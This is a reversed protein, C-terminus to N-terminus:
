EAAGHQRLLDAIGYYDMEIALKLPTRGEVDKINLDAGKEILLEINGKYGWFVATHLPTEGANNQININSGHNILEKSINAYGYATAYHLPTDGSNDKTNIDAGKAILLKLVDIIKHERDEQKNEYDYIWNVNETSYDDLFYDPEEILNKAFDNMNIGGIVDFYGTEVRATDQYFSRIIKKYKPLNERALCVLGLARIYPNKDKTMNICQEEEFPDSLILSMIYFTSPSGVYGINKGAVRNIDKLHSIALERIIGDLEEDPTKLMNKIHYIYLSNWWNLKIAQIWDEVAKRSNQKGAFAMGALPRYIIFKDPSSLIPVTYFEM